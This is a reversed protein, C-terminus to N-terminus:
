MWEHLCIHTKNIDPLDYGINELVPIVNEFSGLATARLHSLEEPPSTALADLDSLSNVSVDRTDCDNTTIRFFEVEFVDDGSEALLIRMFADEKVMDAVQQTPYTGDLLQQVLWADNVEIYTAREDLTTRERSFGSKYGLHSRRHDRDRVFRFGCVNPDRAVLYIQGPAQAMVGLKIFLGVIDRILQRDTDDHVPWSAEDVERLLFARWAWMIVYNGGPQTSSDEASNEHVRLRNQLIDLIVKWRERRDPTRHFSRINLDCVGFLLYASAELNYTGCPQILNQAWNYRQLSSLYFLFFNEYSVPYPPHLLNNSKIVSCAHILSLIDNSVYTSYSPDTEKPLIDLISMLPSDKGRTIFHRALKTKVYIMLMCKPTKAYRGFLEKGKEGELFDIATRHIFDVSKTFWPTMTNEGDLMSKHKWYFDENKIELLGASIRFMTKETKECLKVWKDACPTEDPKIFSELVSEDAALSLMPIDSQVGRPKEQIYQFYQAAKKVYREENFAFRSLMDRYLKMLDSPLMYIRDIIDDWTECFEEVGHQIQRLVMYVWIFVGEARCSIEQTAKKFNEDDPEIDLQGLKDVTYKRIDDRTLDQMRLSPQSKFRTAFLNESRSSVCLKLRDPTSLRDLFEFVQNMGNHPESIEDLGDVLVLYPHTLEDLVNSLLEKVDEVAWDTADNKHSFAPSERLLRLAIAKEDQLVQHLLSCIVGKFSNQDNGGPKWLYHSIIRCQPKWKQLTTKTREDNEIFKMFFSKGSGPKGNIWYLSDVDNELWNVLGPKETRRCADYCNRCEENKYVWEFTDCHRQQISNKRDNMRDYTFSKLFGNYREEDLGLKDRIGDWIDTDSRNERPIDIILRLLLEISVTYQSPATRKLNSSGAKSSGLSRDETMVPLEPTVKVLDDLDGQTDESDKGAIMRVTHPLPSKPRAMDSDAELREEMCAITIWYCLSLGHSMDIVMEDQRYLKGSARKYHLPHALRNYLSEAISTVQIEFLVGSYMSLGKNDHDLNMRVQFNRSEYAGFVPKWLVGVERDSFFTNVGEVVFREKILRCSQDLGSPYDVIIRFGVLDHVSDLILKPSDCKKGHFSERRDISKFISDDQKVRGHLTARISSNELQGSLYQTMAKHMVEYEPKLKGWVDFFVLKAPRSPDKALVNEVEQDFRASLGFPLSLKDSSM